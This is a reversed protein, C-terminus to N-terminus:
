SMSIANHNSGYVVIDGYVVNNGYVENSGYVLHQWLSCIVM